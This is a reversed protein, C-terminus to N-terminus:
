PHIKEHRELMAIFETIKRARTEARKGTQIRFLIAYRNRSELTAFFAKAKSSKNLAAQLMPIGFALTKGTGTQAVGVLDKGEIAVPISKEQIPTPVAFKLRDLVTLINPAIGLNYFSSRQDMGLSCLM